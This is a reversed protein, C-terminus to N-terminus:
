VATASRPTLVRGLAARLRMADVPKHLLILGRQQASRLLEPGTDGSILIAPMAAGLASRLADIAAFGTAGNALRYDSVILDIQATDGALAKASEVCPAAIIRCGWAGLLGRMAELV